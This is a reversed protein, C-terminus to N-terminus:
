TDKPSLRWEQAFRSSHEGVPDLRWTVPQAQDSGVVGIEAILIAQRPLLKVRQTAINASIILRGASGLRAEAPRPTQPTGAVPTTMWPSNTQAAYLVPIASGGEMEPGIRIVSSPFKFNFSWRKFSLTLRCRHYPMVVQRDDKPTYYAGLWLDWSLVEVPKADITLVAEEVGLWGDMVDVEPHLQRPLLLRLLDGRGATRTSNGDRWPVEASVPGGGPKGFAPNRVIYPAEDSDFHLALLNAGTTISVVVTQRLNPADGVFHSRLASLWNTLEERSAGVCKGTKEDIGIVWLVPEGGSVNAHAALRRAAQGPDILRGKLEVRSDELVHGASAGAAVEHVWAILEQRKV